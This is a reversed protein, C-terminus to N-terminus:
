ELRSVPPPRPSPFPPVIGSEPSRVRSEPSLARAKPRPDKPVFIETEQSFKERCKRQPCKFRLTAEVQFGGPV